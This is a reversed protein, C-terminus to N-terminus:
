LKKDCTEGYKYFNDDNNRRIDGYKKLSVMGNTNAPHVGRRRSYSSRRILNKKEMRTLNKM